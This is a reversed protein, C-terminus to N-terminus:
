HKRPSFDPFSGDLAKRHTTEAILSADSTSILVSGAGIIGRSVFFMPLSFAPAQPVASIDSM